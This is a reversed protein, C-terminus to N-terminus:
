SLQFIKEAVQDITLESTDVTHTNEANAAENRLYMAWNMMDENALEPHGRRILREKRVDDSCDILVIKFSELQYKACAELIYAIRMQGDLVAPKGTSESVITEVWKDTTQRQWEDGSGYDRTMVEPSPVGISDFFYFSFKDPHTLRLREVGVTKGAGSAGTVFLLNFDNEMTIMKDHQSTLM